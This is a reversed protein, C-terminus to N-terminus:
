NMHQLVVMAAHNINRLHHQSTTHSEHETCTENHSYQEPRKTSKLLDFVRDENILQVLM